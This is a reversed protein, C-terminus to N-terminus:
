YLMVVVKLEGTRPWLGSWCEELHGHQRPFPTQSSMYLSLLSLTSPPELHQISQDLHFDWQHLSYWQPLQVCEQGQSWGSVSVVDGAIVLPLTTSRCPLWWHGVVQSAGVFIQMCVDPQSLYTFSGANSSNATYLMPNRNRLDPVREASTQVLPANHASPDQLISCMEWSQYLLM